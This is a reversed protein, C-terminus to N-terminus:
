RSALLDRVTELLGNAVKESDVKFQGKEIAAKIADVKQTDFVKSTAVKAELSQLQTSRASLVVNGALNADLQPKENKNSAGSELKGSVVKEAGAKEAGAKDLSIGLPNKISDSIKM